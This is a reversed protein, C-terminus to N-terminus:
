DQPPAAAVAEKADSLEVMADDLKKRVEDFRPRLVRDRFSPDSAEYYRQEARVLEIKLEDIAAELEAIRAESAKREDIRADNQEALTRPDEPKKPAAAKEDPGDSSSILILRGKSKKVDANTIVKKGSKAATARKAKSARAATVLTETSPATTTTGGKSQTTSQALASSSYGIAAVSLAIGCSLLQTLLSRM